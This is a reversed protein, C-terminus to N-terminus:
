PTQETRLPFAIVRPAMSPAPRPPRGGLAQIVAAALAAREAQSLPPDALGARETRERREARAAAVRRGERVNLLHRLYDEATQSLHVTVLPGLGLACGDAEATRDRLALQTPDNVAIQAALTWPDPESVAASM